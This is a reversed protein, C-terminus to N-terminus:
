EGALGLLNPLDFSDLDAMPEAEPAANAIGSLADELCGAADKLGRYDFQSALPNRPDNARCAVTHIHQWLANILATMRLRWERCAVRLEEESARSPVPAVKLKAKVKSM